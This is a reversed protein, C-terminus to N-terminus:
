ERVIVNGNMQMDITLDEVVDVDDDPTQDRGRFGGIRGSHTTRM